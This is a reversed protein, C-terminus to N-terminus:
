VFPECVSIGCVANWENVVRLILRSVRMHQYVRLDVAILALLLFPELPQQLIWDSTRWKRLGFCDVDANDCLYVNHINRNARGRTSTEGADMNQVGLGDEMNVNINYFETKYEDPGAIGEGELQKDRLWNMEMATAKQGTIEGGM